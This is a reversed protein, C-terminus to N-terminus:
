GLGPRMGDYCNGNGGLLCGMSLRYLGPVITLARPRSHNTRGRRSGSTNRSRGSVVACSSCSPWYATDRRFRVKPRYTEEMETSSESEEGTDSGLKAARNGVVMAAPDRSSRLSRLIAIAAWHSVRKQPARLGRAEELSERCYELM